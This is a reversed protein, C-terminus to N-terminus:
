IKKGIFSYIMGPYKIIRGVAKAIKKPIYKNKRPYLNINSEFTNLVHELKISSGEIAKRYEELSFANEGGYLKHLPHKALFVSLDGKKFIVHERTAIFLGGSRLVRGAEKCFEVLNKAHHLAQRMYVVDFSVDKFPLKEGWNEVVKINLNSDGALKKIAGAGVIKSPDPEIATVSWGEKALAYSSIGRGAGIDLVKGKKKPLYDVVEKWETSEYYRKAADILPDDYFCAKVLGQQNKQMKLQKVAEEWNM